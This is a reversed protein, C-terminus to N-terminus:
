SMNYTMYESLEMVFKLKYVPNYTLTIPNIGLDPGIEYM